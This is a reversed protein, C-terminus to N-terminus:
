ECDEVTVSLNNGVIFVDLIGPVRRFDMEPKSTLIFRRVSERLQETACSKVVVSNELIEIDPRHGPALLLALSLNQGKSLEKVKTNLIVIEDFRYLRWAPHAM